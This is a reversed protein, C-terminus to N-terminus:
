RWDAIKLGEVRRFHALNNTVLTADLSLVHAAILMDMAGITERSNELEHLVRGYHPSCSVALYDYTDFPALVKAIAAIEAEYRGSKRAGFDLESVTIASVGVAHGENQSEQCRAVLTRARAQVQHRASRKLGRIMYILTDTDLMYIM